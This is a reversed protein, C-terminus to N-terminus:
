ILKLTRKTSEALPMTEKDNLEAKEKPRIRNEISEKLLDLLPM